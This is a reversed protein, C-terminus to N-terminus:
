LLINYTYVTSFLNKKTKCIEPTNLQSQQSMQRFIRLEDGNEGSLRLGAGATVHKCMQCGLPVGTTSVCVCEHVCM